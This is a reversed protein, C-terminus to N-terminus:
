PVAVPKLPPDFSQSRVLRDVGEAVTPVTTPDQLALISIRTYQDQLVPVSAATCGDEGARFTCLVGGSQPDDDSESIVVGFVQAGVEAAASGPRLWGSPDGIDAATVRVRFPDPEVLLEFRPDTGPPPDNIGFTVECPTGVCDQPGNELVIEIQGDTTAAGTTTTTRPEDLSFMTVGSTESTADLGPERIGAVAVIRSGAVAVGGAVVGTMDKSWLIEGSAIDFARLTFDTGGLFLVGGVEAASAYTAAPADSQWAIDGTAADLAHACPCPGVATGGLILGDAVATAGIFGGTSYNSGPTEIGPETAATNWVLKGDRDLTYYSADKNGLGVLDVGDANFLNPTGAFDLDDNNPEHPQFSWLPEGTALDLAYLAETYDGWGEPSTPCNASGVFVRAASSTSAPHDGSAPVARPSEVSIPISTGSPRVRTPTSRSFAQAFAPLTM